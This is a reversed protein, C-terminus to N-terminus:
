SRRHVHGDGIGFGNERLEGSAAGASAARESRHSIAHARAMRKRGIRRRGTRLEAHVRPSGYTGRSQRHIAGIELQLRQDDRARQSSGWCQAAYFGSRSVGLLHCMLAVSFLHRHQAICAVKM